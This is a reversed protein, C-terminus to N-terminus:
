LSRLYLLFPGFDFNIQANAWKQWCKILLSIIAVSIILAFEIFYLLRFLEHGM